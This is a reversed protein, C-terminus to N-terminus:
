LIDVLKRCEDYDNPIYVNGNDKYVIRLCELLKEFDDSYHKDYGKMARYFLVVVPSQKFMLFPIFVASSTETILVKNSFDDIFCLVEFPIDVYKYYMCDFYQKIDRPHPKVIIDEINDVFLRMIRDYCDGNDSFFLEDRVTDFLIVRNEVHYDDPVGYIRKINSQYKIPLPHIEHIIRDHSKNLLNYLDPSYLFLEYDLELSKRGVIFRRAIKDMTSLRFCDNTYSGVGEELYYIKAKTYKKFYCYLFRNLIENNGIFLMSYIGIHPFNKEIITKVNFYGLFAYIYRGFQSKSKDWLKRQELAYVNNFIHEKEIKECLIKSNRLTDNIYLDGDINLQIKITIANFVQTLTECVFCAKRM